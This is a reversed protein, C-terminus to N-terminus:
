MLALRRCQAQMWPLEDLLFETFAPLWPQPKRLDNVLWFTLVQRPRFEMVRALAVDLEEWRTHTAASENTPKLSIDISRLETYQM